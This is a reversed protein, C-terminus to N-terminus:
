GWDSPNNRQTIEDIERELSEAIATCQTGLNREERENLMRFQISGFVILTLGLVVAVLLLFSKFLISRISQEKM